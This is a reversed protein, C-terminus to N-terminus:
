PINEWITHLHNYACAHALFGVQMGPCSELGCRLFSTGSHPENGIVMGEM